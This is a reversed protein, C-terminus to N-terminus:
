DIKQPSYRQLIGSYAKHSPTAYGGSQSTKVQLVALGEVLKVASGISEIVPVGYQSTLTRSFDIM